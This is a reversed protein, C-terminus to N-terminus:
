PTKEPLHERKQEVFCMKLTQYPSIVSSISGFIGLEEHYEPKFNFADALPGRGFLWEPTCWATVAPKFVDRDVFIWAIQWAFMM